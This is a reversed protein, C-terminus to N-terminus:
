SNSYGGCRVHTRRLPPEMGNVTESYVLGESGDAFRLYRGVHETRHHIRRQVLLRATAAVCRAVTKPLPTQESM